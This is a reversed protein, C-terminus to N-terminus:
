FVVEGGLSLSLVTTEPVSQAVLSTVGLGGLISGRLRCPEPSCWGVPVRFGLTGGIAWTFPPLYVFLGISDSPRGTDVAHRDFPASFSGRLDLLPVFYRNEWSVIAGIDPSRAGAWRSCGNWRMKFVWEVMTFV